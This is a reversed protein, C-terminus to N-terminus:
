PPISAQGWSSVQEPRAVGKELLLDLLAASTEHRLLESHARLGTGMTSTEEQQISRIFDCVLQATSRFHGRRCEQEQTRELAADEQPPHFPVAEENEEAPAAGPGKEEEEEVTALKPVRSARQSGLVSRLRHREQLAEQAKGAPPVRCDANPGPGAVAGSRGEGAGPRGHGRTREKSRPVPPEPGSAAIGRPPARVPSLAASAAPAAAGRTDEAPGPLLRPRPRSQVRHDSEQYDPQINIDLEGPILAAIEAERNRIAALKAETDAKRNGIEPITNGKLHGKCHMIAVQTPLQVAELLRLVEEAHKVTKRQTTLLGREKWIAGHAHVVSFAYKSDTWINIQMNEALELARTLAILEAKQSSTGAPLPNSEIVRETTTVAYGAMRVGQRVFSSGDSFWNDADEFPEEKLDPRSSYVAEITELCDHEIPEAPVRGELFSAPNVINTVQITVDDSEALIAQYKLFRSPSLWHNGKQELVASVTHSVLVTVKQGLTFKRAEEINIIVAAVARLCGPWGQSVEDLRKSFYAVARKYPGLQQALVGLAMGQREHSFLWFPKSVDPLGLAPARMLERKLRKFAGEAEPTWVLVNKTEKLLDYLPKALIGYQYIWLRCWGTMGLFARLDRVTEPKPMQCIAEKRAAGLSRQGRSVEYGLYVVEKQVLQAKQQSVRYGSLGLFNLLSITWEICEEETVTAILLDDIYQLLTGDGLPREWKDLEKALPNGFITPSNAWGQPLVTWTLQTKRGRDVSEWEFAFIKQSEPKPEVCSITLSIATILQEENVQFELKDKNFKIVAGLNELLDRGLLPKPSNPLYLFQHIGMQKGIKYKIPKLFYAKEPQGTAGVVQVFEDSKPVLEHNLVSFTAGTDFLFNLEKKGEGLEM